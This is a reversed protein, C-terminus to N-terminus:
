IVSRTMRRSAINQQQDGDCEHSSHQSHQSTQEVATDKANDM